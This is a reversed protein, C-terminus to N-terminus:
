WYLGGVFLVMLLVVFLFVLIVYGVIIVGSIWIDFFMGNCVVKCIGLLILILYVIIMLWLGLMILVLMKELVLDIVLILCFFSIGFDFCLYNGLMIGFCEVM